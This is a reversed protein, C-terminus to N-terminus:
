NSVEFASMFASATSDFNSLAQQKAPPDADPDTAVMAEVVATKTVVMMSRVRIDKVALDYIRCPQTTQCDRQSFMEPSGFIKKFMKSDDEFMQRPTDDTYEDLHTRRSILFRFGDAKCSLSVAKSNGSMEPLASTREPQCPFAAKVGIERADVPMWDSPIGTKKATCGLAWAIFSLLLFLRVTM